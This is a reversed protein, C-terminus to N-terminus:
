VAPSDSAARVPRRPGPRCPSQADSRARSAIRDPPPQVSLRVCIEDSQISGGIESNFDRLSSHIQRFHSTMELSLSAFDSRHGPFSGGPYVRCYRGKEDQCREFRYTQGLGYGELGHHGRPETVCRTIGSEIITITDTQNM